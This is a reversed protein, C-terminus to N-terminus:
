GFAGGVVAAAFFAHAVVFLALAMLWASTVGTRLRSRADELGGPLLTLTEAGAPALEPGDARFRGIATVTEGARVAIESFVHDPGLAIAPDGFDYRSARPPERLEGELRALGDPLAGPDHGPDPEFRTESLYQRVRPRAADGLDHSEFSSELNMASLGRLAVDGAASRVACPVSAFGRLLRETRWGVDPAPVRRGLRYAYAVCREGRFPSALPEETAVLAGSVAVRAGDAPPTGALARAVARRDASPWFAASLANVLFTAFVALVLAAVLTGGGPFALALVVAYLAALAAYRALELACGRRVPLATAREPASM